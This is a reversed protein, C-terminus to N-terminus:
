HYIRGLDGHVAEGPHLFLSRTGTSALTASVKAGILGAKGIGTVVVMGKCDRLMEAAALFKPPMADALRAIAAAAQRLADQAEHLLGAAESGPNSSAAARAPAPAPASPAPAAAPRAASVTKSKASGKRPNVHRSTGGTRSATGVLITGAFHALGRDEV